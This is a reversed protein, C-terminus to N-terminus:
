DAIDFARPAAGAHHREVMTTYARELGRAFRPTDFLPSDVVALAATRARDREVPDGALRILLGRYEDQSRAVLGGLGAATLLSAAVRAAFTEGALTALPCGMWLSDSATTHSSCPFTDIALDAAWYRALHEELPRHPAFMLRAPLIGRAQAADRLAATALPNDELLWLM